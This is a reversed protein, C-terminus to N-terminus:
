PGAAGRSLFDVCSACFAVCRPSNKRLIDDDAPRFRVDPFASDGGGGSFISIVCGDTGM